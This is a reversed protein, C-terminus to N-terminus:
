SQLVLEADEFSRIHVKQKNFLNVLEDFYVKHWKDVDEESPEPIHPLEVPDGVVVTIPVPNPIPSYWRGYPLHPFGYMMRKQFWEQMSKYRFNDLIQHEGFSYVPVLHAGHMMAMRVFGKHKSILVIKKSEPRTERMEREGGPILMV